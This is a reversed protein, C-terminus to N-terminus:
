RAPVLEAEGAAGRELANGPQVTIRLPVTVTTNEVSDHPHGNARQEVFTRMAHTPGDTRRLGEYSAGTETQAVGSGLPIVIAECADVDIGELLEAVLPHEAHELMLSRIIASARTASGARWVIRAEDADDVWPEGDV